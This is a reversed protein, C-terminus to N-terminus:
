KLKNLYDIASLAAVIGQGAAVGIQKYPINTVDGAAFIGSESTECKQNIIIQGAKDKEVEVFDSNPIMGVHVMVGDVSIEKEGGPTHYKLSTVKKEGIIADTTAQHIIEVNSLNKIKDILVDEGNPFGWKSEANNPALTLIYVKAAINSMMIASELASSGGGITATTKNKFLPGDCVTCYTVGKGSLEKEGPVGLQRPHIGTAIILARAEYSRIEKNMNAASISYGGPIKKITNVRYGEDIEVGYSLVHEAFQRALEFGRINQIGPWNSIEGAFSVEGGVNDSVVKFSLKRRAAYISASCGAASAGIILLDLM